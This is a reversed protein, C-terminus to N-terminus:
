VCVCIVCACVCVCMVCVACCLICCLLLCSDCARTGGHGPTPPSAWPVVRAAPADVRVIHADPHPAKHREPVDLRGEVSPSLNACNEKQGQLRLNYNLESGWDLDSYM